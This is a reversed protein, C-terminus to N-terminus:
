RGPLVPGAVVGHGPRLDIGLQRGIVAIATARPIGAAVMKALIQQAPGPKKIAKGRASGAVAALVPGMPIKQALADNIVSMPMETGGKISSTPKGDAGVGTTLEGDLRTKIGGVFDDRRKARDASSRANATNTNNTVSTANDAANNALSTENTQTTRANQGMQNLQEATIKAGSQIAAALLRAQDTYTQALAKSTASKANAVTTQFASILKQRNTASDSRERNALTAISNAAITPASAAVTNANDAMQAIALKAASGAAIGGAQQDGSAVQQPAGAVGGLAQSQQAPANVLTALDKMRAAGADAITKSANVAQAEIGSLLSSRNAQDTDWKSVAQKMWPDLGTLETIRRGYWKKDTGQEIEFEDSNLNPKTKWSGVIDPGKEMGWGTPLGLPTPTTTGNGASNRKDQWTKYAAARAAATAKPNKRNYAKTWNEKETAM